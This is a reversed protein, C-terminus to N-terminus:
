VSSQQEQSTHCHEHRDPSFLLWSPPLSRSRTIHLVASYHLSPSYSVSISAEFTPSGNQYISHITCQEPQREQLQFRFGEAEPGASRSLGSSTNDRGHSSPPTPVSSRHQSFTQKRQHHVISSCLLVVSMLKVRVIRCKVSFKTLWRLKSLGVGHPTRM